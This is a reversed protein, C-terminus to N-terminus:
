RCIVTINPSGHRISYTLGKVKALLHKYGEKTVYMNGAIINLQNGYPELGICFSWLGKDVPVCTIGFRLKSENM